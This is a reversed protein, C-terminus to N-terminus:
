QPEPTRVLALFQSVRWQRHLVHVPSYVVDNTFALDLLTFHLVVFYMDFCFSFREFRSDSICVLYLSGIDREILFYSDISSSRSNDLIKCTTQLIPYRESDDRTMTLYAPDNLLTSVHLFILSFWLFIILFIPSFQSIMVTSQHQSQLLGYHFPHYVWIVFQFITTM